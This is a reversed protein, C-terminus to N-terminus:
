RRSARRATARSRWTDPRAARSRRQVALLGPPAHAVLVRRHLEVLQQHGQREGDQVLEQLGRGVRDERARGARRRQLQADGRAERRSVRPRPARAGPHLARAYNVQCEIMFIISNHGLNTNPGYMMFFNPFGAVTLGLHAEAGDAGSRRSSRGASARRDADARPVLDGPLRDRPDAHGGRPARRGRDCATACSASSRRRDRARREPSDAGAPLRRRDPHAQLRDRYDPTLKKRM